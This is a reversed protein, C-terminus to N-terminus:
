NGEESMPLHWSNEGASFIWKPNLETGLEGKDFMYGKRVSSILMEQGEIFPFSRIADNYMDYFFVNWEKNGVSNFQRILWDCSIVRDENSVITIPPVPSDTESSNVMITSGEVRYAFSFEYAQVENLDGDGTGDVFSRMGKSRVDTLVLKTDGLLRRREELFTVARIFAGEKDTNRGDPGPLYRYSFMGGPLVRFTNEVNSFTVSGAAEDLRTLLSDRQRLLISEQVTGLNNQTIEEPIASPLLAEYVPMRLPIEDDIVMAEPVFNGLGYKMSILAIQRNNGVGLAEQDMTFWEKPLAGEPVPLSFRYVAETSLVFVTNISANVNESPIIAIQEVNDFSVVISEQAAQSKGTLWPLLVTPIPFEFEYLFFRRSAILRSWEERPYTKDPSVTLLRQVYHNQLESWAKEWYDSSYDLMWRISDEDSVVLRTPEIYGIKRGELLRQDATTEMSVRLFDMVIRVPRGQVQRNWHLGVQFIGSAILAILLMTKLKDVTRVSM